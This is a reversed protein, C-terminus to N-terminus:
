RQNGSKPQNFPHTHQLEGQLWVAPFYRGFCWWIHFTLSSLPVTGKGQFECTKPSVGHEVKIESTGVKVSFIQLSIM